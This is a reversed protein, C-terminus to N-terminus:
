EFQDEAQGPVSGFRLALRSNYKYKHRRTKLTTKMKELRDSPRFMGRCSERHRIGDGGEPQWIEPGMM